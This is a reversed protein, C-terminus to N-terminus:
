QTQRIVDNKTLVTLMAGTGNRDGIRGEVGIKKLDCPRLSILFAGALRPLKRLRPLARRRRDREDRKAASARRPLVGVWQAINSRM